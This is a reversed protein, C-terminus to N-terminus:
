ADRDRCGGRRGTKPPGASANHDTNQDTDEKPGADQAADGRGRPFMDEHTGDRFPGGEVIEVAFV